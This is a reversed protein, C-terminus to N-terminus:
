KVVVVVPLLLLLVVLLLLGTLVRLLADVADVTVQEGVGVTVAPVIPATLLLILVGTVVGM